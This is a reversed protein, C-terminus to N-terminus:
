KFLKAILDEAAKEVVVDMPQGGGGFLRDTIKIGGKASSSSWIVRGTQTEVMQLSVSVVNASTTGARVEGYERVAGTIIAQVKIIGGLKIMEDTSPSAANQIEAKAVGKAVEGIPLVYVAGTSLLKNMFVDRVREGALNDRTFNALPMVAVTQLSGFDMNRDHYVDPHRGACGGFSVFVLLILSALMRRSLRM